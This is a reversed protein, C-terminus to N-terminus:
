NDNVPLVLKARFGKGIDSSLILHGQHAKAIREVMPLGLGHGNNRPHKRKSSYPLELLSPIESQSIGKGNDAIIFSCSNNSEDFTTQLRILCGDPNHNISNQILNNIARTLLREDGNVKVNEDLNDVELIFREDLGNNLFETAIQRILVSTRILKKNLPQMEYELMSVLNLDSVLSRLYEGQQRIIGAQRRQQAPIDCNEELNSSYGLVMSLPTRIDHSIGAIWNSRAEDRSKLSENKKRLLTSARNVSQALDALIGKPEIFTERDEALAQIGQTLPRISHVLRYGILLSLLLAVVINILLLVAMRLPLSSVWAVPLIYEYKALSKKPYGVVVLGDNHEWVFVPYDELYNKTFKAIDTLSYQDPLEKPIMYDWAIYGTNDDILMAWAHNQDLLKIVSSDLSYPTNNSPRNLNEAVDQVISAPSQVGTMGKVLWFGLLIFNFVVLFASILMTAGIFRKLIRVTGKM